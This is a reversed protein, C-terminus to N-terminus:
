QLKALAKQVLDALPAVPPRGPVSTATLIVLKDAKALSIVELYATFTLGSTTVPIAIEFAISRDGLSPSTQIAITVNGLQAGPIGALATKLGPIFCRYYPEVFDLALSADAVSSFVAGIESLSFPSSDFLGTDAFALEKPANAIAPCFTATGFLTASPSTVPKNTWGRPLDDLTLLMAKAKAEADQPTTTPASKPTTTATTTPPASASGSASDAAVFPVALKYLNEASAARREGQGSVLFLGLGAAMALAPILWLMRIM